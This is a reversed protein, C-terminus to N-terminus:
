GIYYARLQAELAAMQPATYTDDFIMVEAYSQKGLFIGTATSANGLDFRWTANSTYNADTTPPNGATYSGEVGNVRLRPYDGSARFLTITVPEGVVVPIDTPRATDGVPFVAWFGLYGGLVFLGKVGPDFLLWTYYVGTAADVAHPTMVGCVTFEDTFLSTGIVTSLVTENASDNDGTYAAIKGRYLERDIRAERGAPATFHKNGIRDRWTLVTEGDVDPILFSEEASWRAVPTDGLASSTDITKEVTHVNGIDVYPVGDEIDKLYGATPLVGSLHTKAITQDDEAYVQNGVDSLSVPDSVSNGIGYIGKEIDIQQDGNGGAVNNVTRAAIGMVILTSNASAPVAYGSANLCVLSGAWIRTFAAVPLNVLTFKNGRRPPNRPKTQATM